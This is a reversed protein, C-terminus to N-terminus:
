IESSMNMKNFAFHRYYRSLGLLDFSRQHLFLVKYFYCYERVVCTLTQIRDQVHNRYSKELVVRIGCFYRFITYSFHTFSLITQWCLINVDILFLVRVTLSDKKVIIFILSVIEIIIIKIYYTTGSSAYICCVIVHRPCSWSKPNKFPSEHHVFGNKEFLM